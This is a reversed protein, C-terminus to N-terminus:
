VNGMFDTGERSKGELEGKKSRVQCVMDNLPEEVFHYEEEPSSTVQHRDEDAPM